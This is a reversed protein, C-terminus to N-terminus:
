CGGPAGRLIFGKTWQDVDLVSEEVFPVISQEFAVKIGNIVEVKDGEEPEELAM